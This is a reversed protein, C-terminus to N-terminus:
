TSPTCGTDSIFPTVICSCAGCRSISVLVPTRSCCSGQTNSLSTQKVHGQQPPWDVQDPISIEDPLSGPRPFMSLHIVSHLLITCSPCHPLFAPNEEQLQEKASIIGLNYGVTLIIISIGKKAAAPRSDTCPTAVSQRRSCRLSLEADAGIGQKLNGLLM